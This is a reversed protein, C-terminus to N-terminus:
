TVTSAPSTCEEVAFRVIDAAAHCHRSQMAPPVRIDCLKQLIAETRPLEQHPELYEWQSPRSTFGQMRPEGFWKIHLGYEGATRVVAGIQEASLDPLTFQFSSGVYEERAIREIVRVQPIERFRRELDRYLGNMKQVREPLLDLQPTVVAAELASMRLSYNAIHGRLPEFTGLPPRARHQEYLMYSGSHLIARAAIEDDDTVVFGGEGSNIHKFTQASFCGVKGFTGTPRGNWSAGLTHACDEILTIDLEDCLRSVADLDGFHGRMHSLLLTKAGSSEAKRRLDDLDVTLHDTIEVLVSEAGAHEVAGPVPALTYGNVLVRDGPGVGCSRLAVFLSGGCSNVGVAYRRGLLEAFRVELDAADNVEGEAVETYRFLRGSRMLETARAIGSEPIPDPSTPDFDFRAPLPKTPAHDLSM